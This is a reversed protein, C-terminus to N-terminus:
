TTIYIKIQEYLKDGIGNVKKIDEITIFKGNNSRYSIIAKAKSEGIGPIKKLDELTATNINILDFRNNNSPETILSDNNIKPCICENTNNKDNNEESNLKAIEEKTYIIIVMEDTIKKALNILSTDATEILGGSEKIVDEIYKNCDIKYGGPNAVAGKIDVTCLTEEDISEVSNEELEINDTVIDNYKNNKLKLKILIIAVMILIILIITLPYKLRRIIKM